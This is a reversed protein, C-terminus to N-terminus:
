PLAFVFLTSDGAVAVYQKGDVSYAIPSNRIEAGTQYRWLGKGARADLAILYGGGSGAFLVGGATHLVGAAVNGVHLPFSWRAQGTAPDIARIAGAGPEERQGSGTYPQGPVVEKFKSTYFACVERVSVFYLGTKPDYSSAAWNAGGAADPCAYNGEPTPDTNPLVIPRGKDDLGKAWTQKVFPKGLLFEGNTRDLVYFFGNRNAQILLKRPRGRVEADILVPTENADWDHTDHPTFQFYWKLKGTAPDLALVSCTYLNDGLRVAGDYDPSPNGTTWFLTDTEADYTGTMWTPGGGSDASNGSWTARARAHEPDDKRPIAWFRWLRKGTAADYADVFGNNGCEGATVGVIIKGDLALPAHTISYGKHYDDVATEWIKNGTKADLAVLHTDLTALYLRDGLVGFGRNTMVTCYSHVDEPVKRRYRWMTRGTRADLAAADNLPGTVFMLGDVVLPMTENHGGGFQYAWVGRLSAVNAPTISALRSSHTGRYDGWYTLWNRPEQAANKLRAFTVNFDAAPKWETFDRAAPERKLFAILDDVQGPQLPIEPMLSQKPSRAEAVDKKLLLHLKEAEDMLQISFTDENRRAGRLLSGDRRKVEVTEFGPRLSESPHTIARRLEATKKEERIASLDPGLRGGKGGFMHCRACHAAFLKGGAGADGAAAEEAAGSLTRLFALVSRAESESMPFAPMQTGPIGKLINRTIDDDSGGWRWNGTTLDSGRGGKANAGHCGSCMKQFLARGPAVAESHQALGTSAFLCVLVVRKM